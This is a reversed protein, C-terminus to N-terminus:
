KDGKRLQLWAKKGPDQDKESEHSLDPCQPDSSERRQFSPSQVEPVKGILFM